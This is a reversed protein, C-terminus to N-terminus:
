PLGQPVPSADGALSPLPATVAPSSSPSPDPGGPSSPVPDPDPVPAPSTGTTVKPSSAPSREGTGLPAASTRPAAQEEPPPAPVEVTSRVVHPAVGRVGVTQTITIEPGPVPVLVTAPHLEHRVWGTAVAAGFFLGVALPVAGAAAVWQPLRKM